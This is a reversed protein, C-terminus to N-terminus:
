SEMEQLLRELEDMSLESLLPEGAIILGDAPWAGYPDYDEFVALPPDDPTDPGGPLGVGIWLAALAAAATLPLAWRRWGAHFAHPARVGRSAAGAGVDIPQVEPRAAERVARRIRTELGAPIELPAARLARVTELASSCDPCGALHADLRAAREQDLAGAARDTLADAYFECGRSM